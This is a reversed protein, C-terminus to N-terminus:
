VFELSRFQLPEGVWVGLVWGGRAASLVVGLVWIWFLITPAGVSRDEVM